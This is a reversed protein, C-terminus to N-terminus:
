AYASLIIGCNWSASAEKVFSIICTSSQNVVVIVNSGSGGAWVTRVALLAALMSFIAARLIVAGFYLLNSRLYIKKDVLGWSKV